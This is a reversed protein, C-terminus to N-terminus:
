PVRSTSVADVICSAANTSHLCALEPLRSCEFLRLLAGYMNSHHWGKLAVATFPDAVQMEDFCLLSARRSGTDAWNLMSAKTRQEGTAHGLSASTFPHSNALPNGMILMHSVTLGNTRRLTPVKCVCPVCLARHINGRAYWSCQIKCALLLRCHECFLCTAVAAQKCCCPTMWSSIFCCSHHNGAHCNHCTHLWCLTISFAWCGELYSTHSFRHDCLLDQQVKPSKSVLRWCAAPKAM